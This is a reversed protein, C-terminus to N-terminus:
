LNEKIKIKIWKEKETKKYLHLAYIDRDNFGYKKQLIDLIPKAINDIDALKSISAEIEVEIEGKFEPKWNGLKLMVEEEYRKYEPTKFRRGQWCRNVSLPNIEIKKM